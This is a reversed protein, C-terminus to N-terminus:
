RGATRASAERQELDSFDARDSLSTRVRHKILLGFLTMGSPGPYPYDGERFYWVEGGQAKLAVLEPELLPVMTREGNVLVVGSALVSVKLVPGAAGAHGAGLALIAVFAAAIIRPVM